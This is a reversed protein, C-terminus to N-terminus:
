RVSSEPALEMTHRHWTSVSDTCLVAVCVCPVIHKENGETKRSKKRQETPPPQTLPHVLALAMLFLNLNMCFTYM